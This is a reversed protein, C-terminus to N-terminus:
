SNLSFGIKEFAHEITFSYGYKQNGTYHNPTAAVILYIEKDSDDVSVQIKGNVNNKMKVNLFKTTDGVIVIRGELRSLAGESGFKEGKIIFKYTSHLLNNVKVVNYSWGRPLLSGSPSVNKVPINNGTYVKVYPRFNNKDGVYETIARAIQVQARTLYDFDAVNHAAWDAFATRFKRGGAQKYIYEQPLIDVNSYFGSTLVDRDIKFVETIYFLLTHMTATNGPAANDFYHWLALHPNAEIAGAELFANTEKPYKSSAFWKASSEIYWKSDGYKSDGYYEFGPSNSQYQFVHFGEHALNLKDTHYPSPLTLYPNGYRDTRQFNEWWNPFLDDEGHHIYVNYYFGRAINPPDKM